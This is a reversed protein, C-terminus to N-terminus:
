FKHRNMIVSVDICPDHLLIIKSYKNNTVEGDFRAYDLYPNNPEGVSEQLQKSLQSSSASHQKNKFSRKKFPNEIDNGASYSIEFVYM